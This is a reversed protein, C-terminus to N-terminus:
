VLDDINEPAIHGPVVTLPVKLQAVGKGTFYSVLPGPGGGHTDAALILKTIEPNDALVKLVVQHPEGQEVFQRPAPVNMAQMQRSLNSVFVEAAERQELKMQEEVKGWPTFENEPSVHLIAVRAGHASASRAAYRLAASFEETEDAVIMYVPGTERPEETM